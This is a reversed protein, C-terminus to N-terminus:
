LPFTMVMKPCVIDLSPLMRCFHCRQRMEMHRLKLLVHLLSVALFNGHPRLCQNTFRITRGMESKWLERHAGVWKKSLSTSQVCRRMNAISGPKRM